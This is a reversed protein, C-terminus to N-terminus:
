FVLPPMPPLAHQSPVAFQVENPGPPPGLVRRNRNLDQNHVSLEGTVMRHTQLGFALTQSAIVGTTPLSLEITHGSVSVVESGKAVGSGSVAQGVLVGTADDALVIQTSNLPATAGRLEFMRHKQLTFFLTESTMAATTPVSLEITHGSVRVVESGEAVGKGSVAQGVLVRTTEGTVVVQTSNLPATAGRLEFKFEYSADFEAPLDQKTGGQQGGLPLEEMRYGLTSPHWAVRAGKRKKHAARREERDLMDRDLRRRFEAEDEAM